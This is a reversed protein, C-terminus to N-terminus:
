LNQAKSNDTMEKVQPAHSKRVTSEYYINSSQM